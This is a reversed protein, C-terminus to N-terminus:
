AYVGSDYFSAYLTQSGSSSVVFLRSGSGSPYSKLSLPLQASQSAKLEGGINGAGLSTITNDSGFYISKNGTNASSSQIVVTAIDNLTTTIESVTTTVTLKVTVWKCPAFLQRDAGAM